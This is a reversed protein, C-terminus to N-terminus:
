DFREKSFARFLTKLLSRKSWEEFEVYEVTNMIDCNELFDIGKLYKKYFYTFFHPKKRTKRGRVGSFPVFFAFDICVKIEKEQM